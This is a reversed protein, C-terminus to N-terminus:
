HFNKGIQFALFQIWRESSINELCKRVEKILHLWNSCKSAEVIADFSPKLEFLLKKGQLQCNQLLFNLLQRKEEVKSSKFIEQTNKALNLVM